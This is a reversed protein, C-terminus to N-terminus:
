PACPPSRDDPTSVAAAVERVVLEPREMPILHGADVDVLRARPMAALVREFTARPFDGRRARLVTAPVSAAACALAVVDLEGAAGFIAAEVAGPCALEVQGDSREHLGYEVYLDLAEPLWHRFLSRSAFHARAEARSKWVSRRRRAGDVLRAGRAAREPDDAAAVDPPTPLVPDVLVLREFLAPHRAAAGLMATGGFSHGLGVAVRGGHAPALAEAVALVDLAFEAWRYAAPGEPKTSGGHGRADMGIVRFAPSLAEAVLGLTGACFGNAHHMLVLPGDGGGGDGGWELLAIEVGRQPLVLRRRVVRGRM